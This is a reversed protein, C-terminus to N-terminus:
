RKQGYIKYGHFEMSVTNIAASTDTLTITLTTSGLLYRPEPLLYPLGPTGFIHSSPPPVQFWNGSQQSDSVMVLMGATSTALGTIKVVLFDSQSEMSIRVTAGGSAAVAENAFNYVFFLRQEGVKSMAVQDPM